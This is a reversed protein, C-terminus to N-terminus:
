WSDNITTAMNVESYNGNLKNFGSSQHKDIRM